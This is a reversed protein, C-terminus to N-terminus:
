VMRVDLDGKPFDFIFMFSKVDADRVVEIYKRDLVKQLKGSVKWMVEEVEYPPQPKKILTTRGGRTPPGRGLVRESLRRAMELIIFGLWCGLGLLVRRGSTPM